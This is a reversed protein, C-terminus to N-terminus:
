KESVRLMLQTRGDLHVNRRRSIIVSGGTASATEPSLELGDIGLVGHCSPTLGGTASLGGSPAGYAANTSSVRGPTGANPDARPGMPAGPGPAPPAGGGPENATTPTEAMDPPSVSQAPAIAQIELALPIERGDKLVAHDFAIGVASESEEKTRAKVETVHGVIKSGRPVALQGGSKVNETTKATVEDGVKNKRADVGKELMAPITSGASLPISEGVQAHAPTQAFCALIAAGLVSLSAKNLVSRRRSAGYALTDFLGANELRSIEWTAGHSFV